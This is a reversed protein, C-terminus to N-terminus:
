RSWPVGRGQSAGRLVNWLYMSYIKSSNRWRPSYFHDFSALSLMLCEVILWAVLLGWSSGVVSKSCLGVVICFGFGLCSTFCTGVQSGMSLIALHLLWWAAPTGKLAVLLCEVSSKWWELIEWLASVRSMMGSQIWRHKMVM